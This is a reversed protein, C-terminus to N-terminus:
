ITEGCKSCFKAAINNPNGCKICYRLDGAATNSKQSKLVTTALFVIVSSIAFLWIGIGWFGWGLFISIITLITGCLASACCLNKNYKQKFLCIIPYIMPLLLVYRFENIKYANYAANIQKYIDADIYRAWEKWEKNSFYNSMAGMGLQQWENMALWSGMLCGVMIICFIFIINQTKSWKSYLTM